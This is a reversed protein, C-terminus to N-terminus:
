LPMNQYWRAKLRNTRASCARSCFMSVKRSPVFQNGCHRCSYSKNSDYLIWMKSKHCGYKECVYDIYPRIREHDILVASCSDIKFQDVEQMRGKIEYIMDDIKFDPWYVHIKGQYQYEYSETCRSINEGHDMNWILFALEYTSGCYVGKYYGTKARGSGNRIGGKRVCTKSCFRRPDSALTEFETGCTKCAIYLRKARKSGKINSGGTRTKAVGTPNALVAARIKDKTEQSRPGRAINACSRSCYIGSKAHDTKCNPCVKM